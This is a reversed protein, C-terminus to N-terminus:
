LTRALDTSRQVDGAVTRGQGGASDRHSVAGELVYSVIEM